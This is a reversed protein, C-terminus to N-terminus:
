NGIHYYAMIAIIIALAAAFLAFHVGSPDHNYPPERRRRARM